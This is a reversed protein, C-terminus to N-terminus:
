PRIAMIEDLPGMLRFGTSSYYKKHEKKNVMQRFLTLEDIYLLCGFMITGPYLDITLKEFPTCIVSKKVYFIQRQM